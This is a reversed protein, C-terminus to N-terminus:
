SAHNSSHHMILFVESPVRTLRSKSLAVGSEIKETLQVECRNIHCTCSAFVSHM